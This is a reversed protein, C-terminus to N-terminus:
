SVYILEKIARTIGVYRLNMEQGIQWKSKAMPHPCEAGKPMLFFVREAELGKARHISSLRIGVADKNDTFIRNISGIVGEVTTQGECFAFLCDARDQLAIVRNESPNRKSQEKVVEQHLWDSIRAVLDPVDKADQKKITSILGEAVNRGQINAKRGAKIFKFCQTVLPANVRCLIMDGDKVDEHYTKCPPGYEPEKYTAQSILGLGNEEFAEFDPVIKKAEEVIEKGCRRTKTLPVSVCGRSTSTLEEALRPLSEADAGAFGYIAQRDDGCFILRRGSMKALAQQARNLDQAEDVLLVDFCPVALNLRAPLWIMDNFDVCRDASLDACRELVRPVLDFVEARYDKGDESTLDVEYHDALNQLRDWVEESESSGQGLDILNQKCFGVLRETAQILIPTTKRLQRIDVELIEQIIDCVRYESIGNNGGSLNFSNKIARLGLSHMTMAQVGPPVRQQLETAISKNFAVFGITRAGKSKAMEEWVARQQDTPTLKSEGGLIYRLGEVLTTTKGTGARARVILHPPGSEVKTEKSKIRDALSPKPDVTPAVPPNAKVTAKPQDKVESRFKAASRFTVRRGTSLNTCNYSTWAKSGYAAPIENVGDVRVTVLKNSVMAKYHGGVKIESKKM